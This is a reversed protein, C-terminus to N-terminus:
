LVRRAQSQKAAFQRLLATKGIGAEGFVLVVCGQGAAVTDLWGNLAELDHDRELLRM